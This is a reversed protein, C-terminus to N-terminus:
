GRCIGVSGGGKPAMAKNPGPGRMYHREPRYPDRLPEMSAPWTRALTRFREYLMCV